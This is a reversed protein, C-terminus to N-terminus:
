EYNYLFLDSGVELSIAVPLQDRDSVFAPLRLSLCGAFLLTM